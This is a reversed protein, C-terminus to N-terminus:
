SDTNLIPMDRSECIAIAVLTGLRIPTQSSRYTCLIRPTGCVMEVLCSAVLFTHTPGDAFHQFLPKHLLRVHAIM